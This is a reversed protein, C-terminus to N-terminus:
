LCEERPRTNVERELCRIKRGDGIDREKGEEGKGKEREKQEKQKM